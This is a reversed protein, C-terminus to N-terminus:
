RMILHWTKPKVLAVDDRPFLAVVHHHEPEPVFCNALLAAAPMGRSRMTMVLQVGDQRLARCLHGILRASGAGRAGDAAWLDIMAARVPSRGQFSLRHVNVFAQVSGDRELVFTQSVDSALQAALRAAPWQLAWDCRATSTALLEACRPLDGPAYPRVDAAPRSPTFRLLPGAVRAGLREWASVGAAAVPSPDLVKLWMGFRFLFRLDQPFSRAYQTWFQHALSARDGSVVGLSFALDRTAHRERLAGILRLASRGARYAPDVTCWSALGIPLTQSGIRLTHPMSFFTGVLSDGEYLAPALAEGGGVQWRLFAADWLPFWMAGGYTASWVKRGLAAVDECDGAYDRIALNSVV